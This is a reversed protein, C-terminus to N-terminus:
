NQLNASSQFIVSTGHLGDFFDYTFMWGHYDCIQKVISLGLGLQGGASGRVFRNQLSEASVSPTNGTNFIRLAEENLEVKVQGGAVNHRVANGLLNELLLEFLFPNAELRINQQDVRFEISKHASIEELDELTKNLLESAQITEPQGFYEHEIRTITLLAKHLRELRIIAEEAEILRRAQQEDLSVAQQMEELKAKAIAIPTQLEHAAYESFARAHRLEKQLLGVLKLQTEEWLQFEEFPTPEFELRDKQGPSFQNLKNLNTFFPKWVRDGIKKNILWLGIWLLLAGALLGLGITQIYDHPEPIVQRFVILKNGAPLAVAARVERFLEEEGEVPDFLVTDKWNLQESAKGPWDLIELVPPLSPPQEGAELAAKVRQINSGLKETLEQEVMDSLVAYQIAGVVLLLLAVLLAYRRQTYRLLKM